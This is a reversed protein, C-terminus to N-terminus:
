YSAGTGPRTASPSGAQRAKTSLTAGGKADKKPALDQVKVGTKKETTRTTQKKQPM